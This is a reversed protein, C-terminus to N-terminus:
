LFVGVVRLMEFFRVIVITYRHERAMRKLVSDSVVGHRTGKADEGAVFEDM